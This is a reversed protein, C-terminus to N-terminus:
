VVRAAGDAVFDDVRRLERIAQVRDRPHHGVVLAAVSPMPLRNKVTEFPALAIVAAAADATASRASESAM